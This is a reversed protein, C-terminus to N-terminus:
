DILGEVDMVELDLREKWTRLKIEQLSKVKNILASYLEKSEILEIIDDSICTYPINNADYILGTEKHTIWSSTDGNDITVIPKNLRLAELLPNGVNSSDYMSLFFHSISLYNKVDSNNISGVFIISDSLNLLEVKEELSKKESGEGVIFYKLGVKSKSTLQAFLDICRDVRKWGVLRSVSTFIVENNINYKSKIKTLENENISVNDVGNVYFKFNLDPNKNIRKVAKDGMTGDNTMIMLDSNFKLALVLDINFFVRSWQKNALMEEMFTGQFRSVYKVDTKRLLFKILMSALVGHYEYGYIVDYKTHKLKSYFEFFLKFVVIISSLKGFLLSVFKYRSSRLSNFPWYVRSVNIGDPNIENEYYYNGGKRNDRAVLYDVEWNNEYYHVPTNKIVQISKDKFDIGSLFLIKKM